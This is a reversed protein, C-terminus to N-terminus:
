QDWTPLNLYLEDTKSYIPHTNVGESWTLIVCCTFYVYVCMNTNPNKNLLPVFPGKRLTMQAKAMWEKVQWINYSKVNLDEWIFGRGFLGFKAAINGLHDGKLVTDSLVAGENWLFICKLFICLLMYSNKYMFPVLFPPIKANSSKYKEDM